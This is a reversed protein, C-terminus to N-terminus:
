KSALLKRARLLTVITQAIFIVLLATTGRVVAWELRTDPEGHAIDLLALFSFAIGILGLVGLTICMRIQAVLM